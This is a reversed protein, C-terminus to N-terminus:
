IKKDVNSQALKFYISLDKNWEAFNRM